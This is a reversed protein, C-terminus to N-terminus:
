ALSAKFLRGWYKIKKELLGVRKCRVKMIAFNDDAAITDDSLANIYHSININKAYKSFFGM